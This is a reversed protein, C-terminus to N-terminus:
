VYNFMMYCTSQKSVPPRGKSMLERFTGLATGPVCSSGFHTNFSWTEGWITDRGRVGAQRRDRRPLPHCLPMEGCNVGAMRGNRCVMEM